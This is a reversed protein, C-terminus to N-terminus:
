NKENSLSEIKKILKAPNGAVISNAEVDKVVISGARIISNKGITISGIIVVNSGIDVNDEIIPSQSYKGEAIKKSGITTNHRLTVNKGIITGDNVVLGQGHYLSLGKGIKTNWPLEICLIWEVFVRYFVLYPICFFFFPKKSNRCVQALRFLILIMKAKTNKANNELDQFLYDIFKM